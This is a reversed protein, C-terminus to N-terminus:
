GLNTHGATITISTDRNTVFGSILGRNRTLTRDESHTNDGPGHHCQARFIIVNITSDM